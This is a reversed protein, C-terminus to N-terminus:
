SSPSSGRGFLSVLGRARLLVEQGDGRDSQNEKKLRVPLQTEADSPIYVNIEYPIFGLASVNIGYDGRASAKM